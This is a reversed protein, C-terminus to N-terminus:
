YVTQLENKKRRYLIGAGDSLKYKMKRDVREHTGVLQFDILLYAFLINIENLNM